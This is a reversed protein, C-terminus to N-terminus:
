QTSYRTLRYGNGKNLGFMQTVFLCRLIVATLFSLFVNLRATNLAHQDVPLYRINLSRCLGERNIPLCIPSVGPPPPPEYAQTDTMEMQIPRTVKM